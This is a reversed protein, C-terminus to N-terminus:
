WRLRRFAALTSEAPHMLQALMADFRSEANSAGDSAGAFTVSIDGETISKAPANFDFGELGDLGGAAKKDFLFQGAVMDVLTYFLGDPLERHNINALIDLECKPILYELSGRDDETVTYGLMALRDVVAEYVGEM